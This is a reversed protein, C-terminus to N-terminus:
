PRRGAAVRAVLGPAPLGHCLGICAGGCLLAATASAAVSALAHALDQSAGSAHRALIAAALMLVGPLAVERLYTRRPAAAEERGLWAMWGVIAINKAVLGAACAVLSFPALAAVLVIGAAASGISSHLLARNRGSVSLLAGPVMGIARVFGNGALLLAVSAAPLWQRGFVLGVIAASNSAITAAPVGCTLVLVALARRTAQARAAANGRAFLPQFLISSFSNAVTVFTTELRKGLNYYALGTDGALPALLMQDLSNISAALARNGTSFLTEARLRDLCARHLRPRALAGAGIVTGLLTLLSQGVQYAVLGDIPAALVAVGIGLGGAVLNAVVARLAMRRYALRMTLAALPQVTLLDLPIRLGVLALLWFHSGVGAVLTGIGALLLLFVPLLGFGSLLLLALATEHCRQLDDKQQLLAEYLGPLGLAKLLEGAAMALAVLGVQAPTMARAFFVFLGFPLLVSCAANLGAWFVGAGYRPTVQGARERTAGTEASM